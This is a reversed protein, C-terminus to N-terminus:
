KAPTSAAPAEAKAAKAKKHHKAKHAHTMVKEKAPPNPIPQMTVSDALAPAGYLTVMVAASIAWASLKM